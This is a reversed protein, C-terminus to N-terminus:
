IKHQAIKKKKKRQSKKKKITNMCSFWINFTVYWMICRSCHCLYLYFFDFHFLFRKKEHYFKWPFTCLNLFEFSYFSRFVFLFYLLISFGRYFTLSHFASLRLSYISWKHCYSSFFVFLCFFFVFLSSFKEHWNFKAQFLCDGSLGFLFCEICTIDYLFM